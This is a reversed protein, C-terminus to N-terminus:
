AVHRKEATTEQTDSLLDNFDTDPTPPMALRVRRREGIWRATADQAARQGFGHTDHDACVIVRTAEPPLILARIGGASLAAWAPMLCATAVALATEIGEAAILWEGARPGGFRVAGGGVPGLSAKNPEINAKGSGDARLFTRLIAVPGAGVREVLAVMAPLKAGSPHPCRPHFRLSASVEAPLDALVISRGLLYRDAHTGVIPVAESWILIARATRSANGREPAVTIRPLHAPGGRRAIWASTARRARRSARLRGLVERAITRRRRRSTGSKPWWAASLPLAM